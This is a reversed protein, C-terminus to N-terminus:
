KKTTFNTILKKILEYIFILGLFLICMGLCILMGILMYPMLKIFIIIILTFLALVLLTYIIPKSLGKDERTEKFSLIVATTIIIAIYMIISVIFGKGLYNLMELLTPM